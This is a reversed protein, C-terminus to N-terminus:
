DSHKEEPVDYVFQKKLNNKHKNKQSVLLSVKAGDHATYFILDTSFVCV